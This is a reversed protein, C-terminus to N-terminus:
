AASRTTAGPDQRLMYRFGRASTNAWDISGTPLTRGASDIVRLGRKALYGKDKKQAPLIDNAFITPPVTWTPNLVLYGIESRFIPTQRYPKGVMARARWVVERDRVYYVEYAAVNVVVFSPALDRLLWRARELNM